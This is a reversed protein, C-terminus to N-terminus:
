DFAGMVTLCIHDAWKKSYEVTLHIGDNSAEDILSGDYNIMSEPVTVYRCSRRTALDLLMANFRQINENTIESGGQSSKKATIPPIGVIYIECNPQRAWVADVIKEYQNIFGSYSPWGLENEGFLLLVKAYTGNYLEDIVPVGTGSSAPLTFVTNVNLGVRTFFAGEKIVGYLRLGEFVSNGVFACDDFASYDPVMPSPSPEPTIEPTVVPEPTGTPEAVPTPVDSVALTPPPTLVDVIIGPDNSRECGVSGAASFLVVALILLVIYKKMLYCWNAIYKGAREPLPLITYTNQM